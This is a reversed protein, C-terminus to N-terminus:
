HIAHREVAPVDEPSAAVEAPRPRPLPIAGALLAVRGHPKARPLPVPGDIPEGPEMAETEAAMVSPAPSGDQVPDAYAPTARSVAPPVAALTAFMPLAAVTQESAPPNAPEAMVTPPPAAETQARVSSRPPEVPEAVTMPPNPILVTAPAVYVRIFWAALLVIAGVPVIVAVFPVWRRTLSRELSLNGELEMTM